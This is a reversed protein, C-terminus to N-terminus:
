LRNSRKVAKYLGRCVKIVLIFALAAGLMKLFGGFEVGLLILGFIM